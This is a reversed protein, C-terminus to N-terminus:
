KFFSIFLASLAFGLAPGLVLMIMLTWILGRKSVRVSKDPETPRRLIAPLNKSCTPCAMATKFEDNSAIYHLPDKRYNLERSVGFDPKQASPILVFWSWGQPTIEIEPLKERESVSKIEEFGCFDCHWTTTFESSTQKGM